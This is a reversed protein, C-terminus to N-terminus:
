IKSLYIFEEKFEQTLKEKENANLFSAQIANLSIRELEPQSFGFHRVLCEYEHNLDTNFM